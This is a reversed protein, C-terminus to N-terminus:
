IFFIIVLHGDYCSLFISSNRIYISLLVLVLPSMRFVVQFFKSEAVHWSLCQIMLLFGRYARFWAIIGVTARIGWQEIKIWLNSCRHSFVSVHFLFSVSTWPFLSHLVADVALLLPWPRSHFLDTCIWRPEECSDGGGGGRFLLVKGNFTEAECRSRGPNRTCIAVLPWTVWIYMKKKWPNRM